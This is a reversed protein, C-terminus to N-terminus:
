TKISTNRELSELLPLQIEPAHRESKKRPRIWERPLRIIEKLTEPNQFYADDIQWFQLRPYPNGAVEFTGMDEALQRMGDSVRELTIFIGAVAEQSNIVDRFARVQTTTPKGTKVEAIIRRQTETLGNKVM